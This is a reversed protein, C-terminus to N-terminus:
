KKRPARPSTRKLLPSTPSASGSSPTSASVTCLTSLPYRRNPDTQYSPPLYVFVDRDPSDGELNGELSKGHVKIRDLKGKLDKQVDALSRILNNGKAQAKGKQAPAQDQSALPRRFFLALGCSCLVPIALLRPSAM